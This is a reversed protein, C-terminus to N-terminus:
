RCVCCLGVCCLVCVFRLFFVRSYVVFLRVCSFFLCLCACCVRFVYFPVLWVFPFLRRCCLVVVLYCLVVCVLKGVCCGGLVVILCCVVFFVVCILCCNPCRCVFLCFFVSFCSVWCSLVCGRLFFLFLVFM